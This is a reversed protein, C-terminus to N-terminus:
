HSPQAVASRPSGRRSRGVNLIVRRVLRGAHASIVVPGPTKATAVGTEWGIEAVAPNSSQWTVTENPLIAGRGDVVDAVFTGARGQQLERPGVVHIHRAAGIRNRNEAVVVIGAVVVAGVLRPDTILGEVGPAARRPSLLMPSFRLAARAYADTPSDFTEIFQNVAAGAVAAYESANM